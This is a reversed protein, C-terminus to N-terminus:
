SNSLLLSLQSHSQHTTYGLARAKPQCSMREAQLSGEFQEEPGGEEASALSGLSM